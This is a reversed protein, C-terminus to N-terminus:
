RRAHERRAAREKWNNKEEGGVGASVLLGSKEFLVLPTTGGSRQSTTLDLHAECFEYQRIQSSVHKSSAKIASSIMHQARKHGHLKCVWSQVVCLLVDYLLEIRKM